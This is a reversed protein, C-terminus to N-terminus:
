DHEHAARRALNVLIIAIWTVQVLDNVLMIMMGAFAAPQPQHAFGFLSLLATMALCLITVFYLAFFQELYGKSKYRKYVGSDSIAFLVTIIAAMFGMMTFAFGAVLSSIAKREAM